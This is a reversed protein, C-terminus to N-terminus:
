AGDSEEAPAEAAAVLLEEPAAAPAVLIEGITLRTYTQRHGIHRTYRVKRKFKLVEIKPGRVEGRATAVVRTASLQAPDLHAGDGNTVLLVRDLELREGVPVELRDVLISDGPQVRYQKGQVEIIAYM